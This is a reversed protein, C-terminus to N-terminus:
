PLVDPVSYKLVHPSTTVAVSFPRVMQMSEQPAFVKATLLQAVRDMNLTACRERADDLERRLPPFGLSPDVFADVAQAEKEYLEALPECPLDSTRTSDGLSASDSVTGSVNGNDAEDEDDDWGGGARGKKRAKQPKATIKVAQQPISTTKGSTSAPSQVTVPQFKPLGETLLDSAAKDAPKGAIKDVVRAIGDTVQEALTKPGVPANGFGQYKGTTAVSAGLGSYSRTEQQVPPLQGASQHSVAGDDHVAHLLDKALLRLCQNESGGGSVNAVSRLAADKRALITRVSAHGNTIVHQLVRLCKVKTPSPGELLAGLLYDVVQEAYQGNNELTMSSIEKYLYGPVPDDVNSTAEALLPVKKLFSLDEKLAAKM